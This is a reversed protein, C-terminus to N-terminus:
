WVSVLSELNCYPLLYAGREARWMKLTLANQMNDPMVPSVHMQFCVQHQATLLLQRVYLILVVETDASANSHSETEKAQDLKVQEKEEVEEAHGNM